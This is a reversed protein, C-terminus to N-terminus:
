DCRFMRGMLDAMTLLDYLNHLLITKIKAADGTRVFDHYAAPIECGPIDEERARGCITHELTQLKCNPLEGRYRRRAEHLLDLHGHPRHFAAGTAIARGELFPVDFSKGNFTVLVRSSRMRDSFAAIIAAEESYDRAFYQRFRFEGDDCEMTGILFVPTMGLGTTEIDMFLVERPALRGARCIAALGEVPENDPHGTLSVIRRHLQASSAELTLASRELLFYGPGESVQEAIESLAEDLSVPTDSDLQSPPAAVPGRSLLVRGPVAPLAASPAPGALTPRVQKALKRRLSKVQASDHTAEDPVNQLPRKNLAEIRKKLDGPMAVERPLSIVHM